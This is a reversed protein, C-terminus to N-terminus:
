GKECKCVGCTCTKQVSETPCNRAVSANAWMVAQELNTHALSKERSKPCAGDILYALEKAKERIKEYKEIQEPQPAHYKYNNEIQENMTEEEREEIWIYTLQCRCNPHKPPTEIKYDPTPPVADEKKNKSICYLSIVGAFGMLIMWIAFDM